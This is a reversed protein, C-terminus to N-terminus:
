GTNGVKELILSLVWGPNVRTLGTPLGPSLHASRVRSEFDSYRKSLMEILITFSEDHEEVTISSCKPGPNGAGGGGLSDM